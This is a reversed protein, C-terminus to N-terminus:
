VRRPGIKDIELTLNMPTEMWSSNTYRNLVQGNELLVAVRIQVSGPRTGTKGSTLHLLTAVLALYGARSWACHTGTVATLKALGGGALEEASRAVCSKFDRVRIFALGTSM